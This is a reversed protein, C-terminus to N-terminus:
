KKTSKNNSGQRGRNISRKELVMKGDKTHSLDKGMKERKGYIGRERAEKNLEARYRKREETAQYKKDYTYDRGTAKTSGKRAM